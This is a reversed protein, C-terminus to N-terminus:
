LRETSSLPCASNIEAMKFTECPDSATKGCKPCRPASSRACLHCDREEHKWGQESFYIARKTGKCNPCLQDASSLPSAYLRTIKRNLKDRWERMTDHNTTAAKNGDWEALWAVPRPEKGAQAVSGALAALLAARATAKTQIVCIERPDRGEWPGGHRADRDNWMEKAAAEIMADSIQVGSRAHAFTYGSLEKAMANGEPSDTDITIGPQYRQVPATM